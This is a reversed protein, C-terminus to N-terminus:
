WLRELLGTDSTYWVRKVGAAAIYGQCVPCPKALRIQDSIGLRAVFLQMSPLKVRDVGHLVNFEAHQTHEAPNKPHTKHTNWGIRFIRGQFVLASGVRARVDSLLAANSAARLGKNLIRM